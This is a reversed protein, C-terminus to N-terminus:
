YKLHLDKYNFAKIFFSVILYFVLCLLVTFILSVAVFDLPVVGCCPSIAISSKLISSAGVHGSGVATVATAVDVVSTSTLQVVPPEVAHCISYPAGPNVGPVPVM